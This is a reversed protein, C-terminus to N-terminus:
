IATSNPRKEMTVYITKRYDGRMICMRINQGVQTGALDSLFERLTRTKRSNFSMIVDDALLGAKEAPSNKIVKEVLVGGAKEAEELKKAENSGFAVENVEIGLWPFVHNVAPLYSPRQKPVVYATLRYDEKAVCMYVEEGIQSGALDSRFQEPTRIKRGNFSLIVDGSEINAKQAPSGTAVTTVYAGEPRDMAAKSAIEATVDTVEIGIWAKGWQDKFNEYNLPDQKIVTRESSDAPINSGQHLLIGAIINLALSIVIIVILWNHKLFDKM